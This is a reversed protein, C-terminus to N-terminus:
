CSMQQPQVVLSAVLSNTALYRSKKDKLWVMFPFNDLLARQYIERQKINKIENVDLQHDNRGVALTGILKGKSNFIPSVKITDYILRQYSESSTAVFVSESMGTAIVKRIAEIYIAMGAEEDLRDIARAGIIDSLLLNISHSLTPNVYVVIADADTVSVNDQSADFIWQFLPLLQSVSDYTEDATQLLAKIQSSDFERM